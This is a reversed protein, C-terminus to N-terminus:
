PQTVPITTSTTATPASYLQWSLAANVSWGRFYIIDGISRALEAAKFILTTPVYVIDNPQLYFFSSKENFDLNKSLDIKTATMVQDIKRIAIVSELKAGYVHGGALTIAELVTIPRKIVYSGPSRVQGAVYVVSGAHHELFLDCHLDPMVKEYMQNMVKSIEPLTQDAVFIDGILPFTVYGDPRVTALRSLGRPATHLDNKFDLISARFEPILVSLEPAQFTRSYSKTLEAKLETPTKGVVVVDGLYPLTIKGDPRVKQTESMEPLHVFKVTITHDIAIKFTEQKKWSQIQYLVDLVDGPVIRYQPFRDFPRNAQGSSFTTMEMPVEKGTKM